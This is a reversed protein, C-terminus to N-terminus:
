VYRRIVFVILSVKWYLTEIKCPEITSLRKFIITFKFKIIGCCVLVTDEYVERLCLKSPHTPINTERQGDTQRDIQAQPCSKTWAHELVHTCPNKQFNTYENNVIHLNVGPIKMNIPYNKKMKCAKKNKSKTTKM